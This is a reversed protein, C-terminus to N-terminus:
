ICTYTLAYSIAKAESYFTRQGVYSRLELDTYEVTFCEGHDLVDARLGTFAHEVTFVVM